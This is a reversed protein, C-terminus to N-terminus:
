RAGCARREDETMVPKIVCQVAQRPAPPASKEVPQPREPEMAPANSSTRVNACAKLEEETMVPKIVCERKPPTAAPAPATATAAQQMPPREYSLQPRSASARACNRLDEESMVPKIVCDGPPKPRAAAQPPAPPTSVPPPLSAFSAPQAPASCNYM